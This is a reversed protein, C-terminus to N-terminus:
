EQYARVLHRKSLERTDTGQIMRSRMKGESDEVAGCKCLQIGARQGTRSRETELAMGMDEATRRSRRISIGIKKGTLIPGKQGKDPWLSMITASYVNLVVHKGMVHYPVKLNQTRSDWYM